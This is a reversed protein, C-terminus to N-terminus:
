MMLSEAADSDASVLMACAGSICPRGMLLQGRVV